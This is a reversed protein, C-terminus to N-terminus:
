NTSFRHFKDVINEKGFLIQSVIVQANRNQKQEVGVSWVSSKLGSPLNVIKFFRFEWHGRRMNATNTGYVHDCTDVYSFPM